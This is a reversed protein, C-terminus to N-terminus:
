AGSELLGGKKLDSILYARRPDEPPKISSKLPLKIALHTCLHVPLQLAMTAFGMSGTLNTADSHSIFTVRAFNFKTVFTVFYGCPTPFAM